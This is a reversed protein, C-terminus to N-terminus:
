NVGHGLLRGSCMPWTPSVTIAGEVTGDVLPPCESVRMPGVREFTVALALYIQSSQSRASMGM